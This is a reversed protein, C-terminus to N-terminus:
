SWVAPAHLPIFVKMESYSLLWFSFSPIRAGCTEKPPSGWHGLLGESSVMGKYKSKNKLHPGVSLSLQVWGRRLVRLYYPSHPGM